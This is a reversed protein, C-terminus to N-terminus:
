TCPIESPSGVDSDYFMMIEPDHESRVSLCYREAGSVSVIRPEVDFDSYTFGEQELDEIRNTYVANGTLYSEEAVAMNRLTSEVQSEWGKERQNLFVPIAIATLIASLMFGWVVGLTGLILGTKAISGGGLSGGSEDIRRWAKISLFIAIISPVFPVFLGVGALVLATTATGETRTPAALAQTM